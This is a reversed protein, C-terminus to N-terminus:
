RTPEELTDETEQAGRVIRDLSRVYGVCLAFFALTLAVFVIDVVHQRREGIGPESEVVDTFAEAAPHL